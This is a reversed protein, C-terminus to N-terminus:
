GQANDADELPVLKYNRTMYDSLRVIGDRDALMKVEVRVLDGVVSSITVETVMEDKVLPKLLPWLEANTIPKAM